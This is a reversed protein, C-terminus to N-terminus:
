PSRQKAATGSSGLLILETLLESLDVKREKSRRCVDIPERGPVAIVKKKGRFQGGTDVLRFLLPKAAGMQKDIEPIRVEYGYIKFEDRNGPPGGTSDCALSVYAAKGELFDELSYLPNDRRDKVGGEMRKERKSMGAQFPWYETLRVKVIGSVREELM